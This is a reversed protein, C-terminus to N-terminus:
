HTIYLHSFILAKIIVGMTYIKDLTWSKISCKVETLNEMM